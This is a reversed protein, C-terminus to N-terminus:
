KVSDGLQEILVKFNYAHKSFEMNSVKEDCYSQEEPTLQQGSSSTSLIPLSALVSLKNRVIGYCYDHKEWMFPRTLDFINFVVNDDRATNVLDQIRALKQKTPDNLYAAVYSELNANHVFYKEPRQYMFTVALIVSALGFFYFVPLKLISALREAAYAAACAILVIILAVLYITIARADWNKLFDINSGVFGVFLPATLVILLWKPLLLYIGGERQAQTHKISGRLFFVFFAIACCYVIVSVIAKNSIEKWQQAFNFVYWFYLCNDDGDEFCDNFLASYFIPIMASSLIVLLRAM